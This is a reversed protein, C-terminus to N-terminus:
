VQNDDLMYVLDQNFNINIGYEKLKNKYAEHAEEPTNFIGIPIIKKNIQLKTRWKDGLKSVGPLIAKKNRLQNIRNDVIDLNELKNNLKNYDRHDIQEKSIIERIFTSAVLRHIYHKKYKKNYDCINVYLYGKMGTAPKLIRPENYKLSKVNGYNSVQYGPYDKIDKFTEIIM